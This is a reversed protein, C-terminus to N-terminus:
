FHYNIGATIVNDYLSAAQTFTTPTGTGANNEYSQSQSMTGYSTYLYQGQVSWNPVFRWEIGGGATWGIRTQALSNPQEGDVPINSGGSNNASSSSNYTFDALALGGTAYVMLTDDAFSYGLRPRLTYFWNTQVSNTAAVADNTNDTDGGSTTVATSQKMLDYNTELGIVFGDAGPIEFNYGLQGGLVASSVNLNNNNVANFTNDLTSDEGNDLNSVLNSTAAKGIAGGINAGAYFGTWDMAAPAPAAPMPGSMADPGGAFSATSAAAVLSAASLILLKKIAM